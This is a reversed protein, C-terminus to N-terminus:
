QGIYIEQPAFSTCVGARICYNDNPTNYKTIVQPEANGNYYVKITFGNILAGPRLSLYFNTEALTNLEVGNPREATICNLTLTKGTPQPFYGLQTRYTNWAELFTGNALNALNYSELSGLGQFTEMNVEHLKMAVTGTLQFDNDIVEIKDVMTGEVGFLRIRMAGFIHKLTFAQTLKNVECAMAMSEHDLTPFEITVGADNTRSELTYNQIAPAEFTEFNDKDLGATGNVIKCTPYFIFFHDMKTGPQTGDYFYLKTTEKDEANAKARYIAKKTNTGETADINYVMVEDYANWKFKNQDTFDIYARSAESPDGMVEEFAPVMITIESNQENKKCSSSMFALVAAMGMMCLMRYTKKM